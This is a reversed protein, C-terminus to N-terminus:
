PELTHIFIDNLADWDPTRDDHMTDIAEKYYHLEKVIYANLADIRPAKESELMQMKTELLNQVLEKYAPPLVENALEEFLVPPPCSKQEIWRCALIPRLM